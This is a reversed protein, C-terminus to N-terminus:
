GSPVRRLTRVPSRHLWLFSVLGTSAGLVMTPALGLREGLQGGLLLGATAVGRGVVSGGAGVRGRLHNPVIAQRLAGRNVAHVTGAFSQVLEAAVLLPVAWASAAIALVILLGGLGIGAQSGVLTPGLGLRRALRDAVLGALLAGASGAGFILGVTTAPQGLERTLYLLYVAMLANWGVDLTAAALTFARLIPDRLLLRLGALVEAALSPSARGGAPAPEDTRIAGLCLASVLFSLADAAVAVPATLLQILLGGLGPGAILAASGTVSLKANAEVLESREVLTPVYAGRATDFLVGLAGALFAVAYLLEIRLLDLLAALPVLGLVVTRGLDAAVMLPRRRLRDIWVGAVLGVLVAPAYALAGLLGMQAPTADLALAATLPLALATVQSGFVSVVDGAWLKLFDPHRWLGSFLRSM